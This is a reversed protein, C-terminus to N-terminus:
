DDLRQKPHPIRPIGSPSPLLRSPTPTTAARPTHRLPFAHGQPDVFLLTNAAASRSAAYWGRGDTAWDISQFAPWGAVAIEQAAGGTLSNIKESDAVTEVLAKFDNREHLFSDSPM